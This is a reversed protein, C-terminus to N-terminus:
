KKGKKPTAKAVAADIDVTVVVTGAAGVVAGDPVPVTLNATQAGPISLAFIANGLSVKKLKVSGKIQM